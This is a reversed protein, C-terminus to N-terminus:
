EGFGVNEGSGLTETAHEDANVVDRYKHEKNFDMEESENVVKLDEIIEKPYNMFPRINEGNFMEWTVTKKVMKQTDRNWVNKTTASEFARQIRDKEIITVIQKVIGNEVYYAIKFAGTINDMKNRDVNENKIFDIVKEDGTEYDFHTKLDDGICIVETKFKFIQKKCYQVMLKEVTQYQGKIKIDYLGTKGNMRIDAYLHDTTCDIGLKAWQKIQMILGSGKADIQKWNYGRENITHDLSTIIDCAVIKADPTFTENSYTVIDAIKNLTNEILQQSFDKKVVGNQTKPQEVKPENKPKEEVKTEQKPTEVKKPEFDNTPENQSAVNSKEVIKLNQAIVDEVKQQEQAPQQAPQQNAFSGFDFTEVDPKKEEVKVEEAKVEEQKTEQKLLDDFFGNQM